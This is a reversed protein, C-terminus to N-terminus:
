EISKIMVRTILTSDGKGRITGTVPMTNEFHSSSVIPIHSNGAIMGHSPDFGVWGAGPLFVELWAHLEFATDEEERAFYYYGSVFRAAVGMYRLLNIQMWTLDRCSGRKLDFAENPQHPIGVERFEILFDTHIQRTLNTVFLITDHNSKEAIQKGYEILSDSVHVFNLDSKLITQQLETYIFPVTFFNPPYLIFNFPNYNETVVVSESRIKLTTTMGDFWCFHILNGEEDLQNSLGTPHPLITLSFHDLRNHPTSKPKLRVYHPELFVESTFAYETEHIIKLNM